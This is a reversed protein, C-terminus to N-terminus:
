SESWHETLDAAPERRREGPRHSKAHRTRRRRDRRLPSRRLLVGASLEGAGRPHPNSLVPMRSSTSAVPKTMKADSVLLDSLDPMVALVRVHLRMVPAFRERDRKTGRISIKDNRM